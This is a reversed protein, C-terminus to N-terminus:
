LRTLHAFGMAPRASLSPRPTPLTGGHLGPPPMAPSGGPGSVGLPGPGNLPVPGNPTSLTTIPPQGPQLVTTFATIIAFAALLGPCFLRRSHPICVSSVTTSSSEPV